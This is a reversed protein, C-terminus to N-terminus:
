EAPPLCRLIISSNGAFARSGQIKLRVSLHGLAETRAEPVADLLDIWDSQVKALTSEQRSIEVVPVLQEQDTQYDLRLIPVGGAQALIAVLKVQLTGCRGRLDELDVFGRAGNPLPNFEAFELITYKYDNGSGSIVIQEQGFGWNAAALVLTALILLMKQNM